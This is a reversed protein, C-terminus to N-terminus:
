QYKCAPIKISIYLRSDDQIRTETVRLLAYFRTSMTTVWLANARLIWNNKVNDHGDTMRSASGNYKNRVNTRADGKEDDQVRKKTVRLLAFPGTM